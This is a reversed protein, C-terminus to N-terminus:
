KQSDVHKPKPDRHAAMTFVRKVLAEANIETLMM